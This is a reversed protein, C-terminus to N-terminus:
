GEDTGGGIHYHWSTHSMEDQVSGSAAPPCELLVDLQRYFTEENVIRKVFVGSGTLVRLDFCLGQELLHKGMWLLQGLRTDLWDPSGKLDMSLVAKGRVPEMPERIVLKGTKATLKWHVQNLNDGPRYLRLEHNESFGGGHKPQWAHSLHRQLDGPAQLAVPRPRVVVVSDSRQRVPLFFLGLYDYARCKTLRCRLAGVHDTPLAEGPSLMWRQATLPREVVIRCRYPPTLFRCRVSVTVQEQVGLTLWGACDSTMSVTLMAPLSLILSAWPLWVVASLLLWALWGQYAAFFIVCGVLTAAYYIWRRVM